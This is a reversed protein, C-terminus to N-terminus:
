AAPRLVGGVSVRGDHWYITVRRPDWRVGRGAARELAVHDIALALYERRATVDLAQWAQESNVIDLLPSLDIAAAARAATLAEQAEVRATEARQLREALRERPLAGSEALDLLREVAAEKAAVDEELHQQELAVDPEEQVVWREAVAALIADDPEAMGLRRLFASEVLPDVLRQLARAGQCTTGQARGACIYARKTPDSKSAGAVGLHSGCHACRGIGRLLSERKIPGHRGKGDATKHDGLRKLIIGREGESIVGEGVSVTHGDEDLYVDATVAWRKRKTVPDEKYQRLSSLGAFGPSRVLSLVASARWQKGRASPIGDDNLGKAIRFASRGELAEDAIRRAIPYTAPDHALRGDATRQLGYPPTGCQWRGEDRAHRRARSVNRSLTESYDRAIEGRLITMMRDREISTDVGDLTVLRRGTRAHRDLLAGIEQAGRREARDISWAILTQFERGDDLDDLAREWERRPRTGYRSASTGEPEAYVSVVRLGLTEAHRRCEAEQERLSRGNRDSEGSDKSSRRVYIAAADRPNPSTPM